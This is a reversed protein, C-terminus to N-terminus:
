VWTWEDPGVLSGPDQLPANLAKECITLLRSVNDHEEFSEMLKKIPISGLFGSGDVGLISGYVRMNDSPSLTTDLQHMYPSCLGQVEDLLLHILAISHSAARVCPHGMRELDSGDGLVKVISSADLTLIFQAEPSDCTQLLSLGIIKLCTCFEEITETPM